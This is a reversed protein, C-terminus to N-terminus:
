PIIRLRAVFGASARSCHKPRNRTRISSRSSRASIIPPALRIPTSAISSSSLGYRTSGNARQAFYKVTEASGLQKALFIPDIRDKRTKLLALHYGCVLNPIDDVVVAAIGIDDPTESDKTILVDGKEVRFRQIEGPSATAEMFDINATVYDQAYVDMYNCLRVSNEGTLSNKDVNSPRIDALNALPVTDWDDM